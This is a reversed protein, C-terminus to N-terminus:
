YSHLGSREQNGGDWVAFGVHGTVADVGAGIVVTWRGERWVGHTSVQPHGLPEETAFGQFRLAEGSAPHNARWYWGEIPQGPSGMRSLAAAATPTLLVAAADPFASGDGYDPNHTRDAWELRFFINQRNYAARVSLARVTGIAKGAWATRVYATPQAQAETGRLVLNTEPVRAWQPAAPNLLTNNALQLKVAEM